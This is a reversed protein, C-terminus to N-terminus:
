RITAAFREILGLSISSHVPNIEAETLTRQPSLYLCSITLGKFGPPIQKGKYYDTIKAEKLLPGANDKIAGLVDEVPVEEKLVISIDRSIGPYLPLATFRKKLNVYAALRELSLELLWVDKNKINLSDLISKSLSLILGIKEQGLRLALQQDNLKTLSYDKIGLREFIVELIGKLNLPGANDVVMGQGPLLRSKEGCLAAGLVLEEKLHGSEQYFVKAIEFINVYEQQQSLNHAICRALSLALTPRLVAENKSLPNLIEALPLRYGMNMGKLSERDVLSYTIVENLGLGTLINKIESSLDRATYTTVQPKIAPLSAPIRPFGFIRAVEEILDVSLSVDPRFSPIGVAFNNKTKAKVQFGLSSLIKKVETSKIDIGLAKNVVSTELYLTKKKAKLSGASKALIPRGGAIACILKTARWSADEVVNFDIGREFRYASESPLGLMQRAHRILIPNFIAAELLINKSELTVETDRGGMVGAIAVPTERDAIVLIEPSLKREVGDITILGEDKTARRVIIEGQSLKDLDFAHLPEGREFLIYNTIDVINNVSRSGMLELRRKIWDPAPGAEVGKIIKATYLPCDKKDEVKIAIPSLHYTIPSLYKKDLRNGIVKLRHGLIAAVERAIGVVCLLDPRNATIEIEFIFDGYKKELSTVELGALTLKDALARPSIKIEVFDKLWSYIVKM